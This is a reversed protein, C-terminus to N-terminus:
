MSNSHPQASNIFLANPLGITFSTGKKQSSTVEISGNIKEVAKKVIFLGLGHSGTTSMISKFNAKFIRSLNSQDIGIGDDIVEIRIGNEYDSINVTVSCHDKDKRRYKVANVLLNQLISELLARSNFFANKTELKISFQISDFGDMHRLSAMIEGLLNQFDIEDPETGKRFMHLTNSIKKELKNIHRNIMRFYERAQEDEIRSHALKVIGKL